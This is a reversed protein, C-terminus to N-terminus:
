RHPFSATSLHERRGQRGCVCPMRGFLSKVAANNPQNSCFGGITLACGGDDCIPAKRLRNERSAKSAAVSIFSLLVKASQRTLTPTSKKHTFIHGKTHWM